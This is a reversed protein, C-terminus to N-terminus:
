LQKLPRISWSLHSKFGMERLSLDSIFLSELKVKLKILELNIM